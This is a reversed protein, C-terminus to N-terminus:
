LITILFSLKIRLANLSAFLFCSWQLEFIAKIESSTIRRLSNSITYKLEIHLGTITIAVKMVLIEYYSALDGAGQYTTCEWALPLRMQRSSNECLRATGSLCLLHVSILLLKSVQVGDGTGSYVNGKADM